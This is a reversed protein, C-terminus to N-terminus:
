HITLAMHLNNGVTSSHFWKVFTVAQRRFNSRPSTTGKLHSNWNTLSEEKQFQYGLFLVLLPSVLKQLYL